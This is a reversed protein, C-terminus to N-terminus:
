QLAVLVLVLGTGSELSSMAKGLVAGPARTRDHAVMAHGPTTSTTLLDGPRIAHATADCLVYVRGTLAVPHRGTAVTGAHGMTMGTAVGGAGSIVGAVTPDYAHRAIRLRGPSTPDICVVMGPRANPADVLDFPEALDAGGTLTLTEATISGQEGDLVINTTGAGDRLFMRAGTTGSASAWIELTQVGNNRYMEFCGGFLTHAFMRFTDTTGATLHLGGTIDGPGDAFLRVTPFTTNDDLELLGGVGSAANRAALTVRRAGDDRLTFQASRNADDIRARLEVNRNDAVDAMRLVGNSLDFSLRPLSPDGATFEICDGPYGDSAVDRYQLGWNPFTISHGIWMRMPEINDHGALILPDPGPAHSVTGTLRMRGASDISAVPTGTGPINLQEATAPATALEIRDLPTGDVDVQLWRPTGDFARASVPGFKTSVVGGAVDAALVEKVDEGVVNEVLGDGDLDVQTGGTRATFIRFQLDVPGPLAAGSGDTLRAQFSQMGATQGLAAGAALACVIGPLIFRCRRRRPRSCTRKNM